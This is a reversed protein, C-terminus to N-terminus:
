SPFFKLFHQCFHFFFPTNPHRTVQDAGFGQRGGGVVGQFYDANENIMMHNLRLNNDEEEIRALNSVNSISPVVRNGGLPGMFGGPMQNESRAGAQNDSFSYGDAENKFGFGVRSAASRIEMPLQRQMSFGEPAALMDPRYSPPNNPSLAHGGAERFLRSVTEETMEDFDKDKKQYHQQPPTRLHQQNLQNPGIQPVNPNTLSSVQLEKVLKALPDRHGRSSGQSVQPSKVIFNDQKPQFLQRKPIEVELQEAPHAAEGPSLPGNRPTRSLESSDISDQQALKAVQFDVGSQQKVFPRMKKRYETDEYGRNRGSRLLEDSGRGLKQASRVGRFGNGFGPDRQGGSYDKSYGSEDSIKRSGGSGGHLESRAGPFEEEVSLGYRMEQKLKSQRYSVLCDKVPLNTGNQLIKRLGKEDGFLIFGYGKRHNKSPDHIVRVEEIKGFRSFASKIDNRTLNRSVGTIYLKRQKEDLLKKKTQRKTFAKKIDIRKGRIYHDKTKLVKEVNAPSSFSVFAFGRFKKTRKDKVLRSETVKGFKKFYEKLDRNRLEKPCGGVFIQKTEGKNKKDM